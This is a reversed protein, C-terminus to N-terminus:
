TVPRLLQSCGQRHATLNDSIWINEQVIEPRRAHAADNWTPVHAKIMLVGEMYALVMIGPECWSTASLPPLDRHVQHQIKHVERCVFAKAGGEEANADEDREHQGLILEDCHVLNHVLAVWCRANTPGEKDIEIENRGHPRFVDWPRGQDDDTTVDLSWGGVLRIDESFRMIIPHSCVESVDHAHLVRHFVQALTHMIVEETTVSATSQSWVHKHLERAANTEM